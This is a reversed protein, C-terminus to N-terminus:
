QVFDSLSVSFPVSQALQVPLFLFFSSSSTRASINNFYNLFAHVKCLVSCNASRLVIDCYSGTAISLCWPLGVLGTLEASCWSSRNDDPWVLSSPTTAQPAFVGVEWGTRCTIQLHQLSYSHIKMYLRSRKLDIGWNRLIFHVMVTPNHEDM